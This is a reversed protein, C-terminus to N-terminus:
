HIGTVVREGLLLGKTIETLSATSLGLTVARTQPTGGVLVRVVYGADGGQVASTPVALVNTRTQATWAAQVSMGVLLGPPPDTIAVTVPYTVVDVSNGSGGAGSFSGSASTAATPELPPASVTGTGTVGLAAYTLQVQQGARVYPADQEAVPVQVSLTTTRLEVAPTGPLTGVTANLAIVVGDQPAVIKTAALAAQASAM